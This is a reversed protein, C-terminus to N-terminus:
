PLRESEGLGGHQIEFHLVVQRIGREFLASVQQVTPREPLLLSLSWGCNCAIRFCNQPEECCSFVEVDFFANVSDVSRECQRRISESIGMRVRSLYYVLAGCHDEARLYSSDRRM